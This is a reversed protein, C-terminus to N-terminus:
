QCDCSQESDLSSYDVLKCIFEITGEDFSNQNKKVVFSKFDTSVIISVIIIIKAIRKHLHYNDNERLSKENSRLLKYGLKHLFRRTNKLRPFRENLCFCDTLELRACNCNGLNWGVSDVHRFLLPSLSSPSETSM